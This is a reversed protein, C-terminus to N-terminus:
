QLIKGEVDDASTGHFGVHGMSPLNKPMGPLETKIIMREALM